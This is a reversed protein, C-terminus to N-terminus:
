CSCPPLSSADGDTLIYKPRDPRQPDPVRELVGEDCLLKLRNTLM